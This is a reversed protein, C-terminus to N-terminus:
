QLTAVDVDRRAASITVTFGAVVDVLTMLTILFFTGTGAASWVIFLVLCTVFLGMSTVHDIVSASSTRTSKLIEGYLLVLGLGIILDGGRLAMDAGSPLKLALVVAGSTGPAILEVVFYVLVVIVLLPISSFLSM